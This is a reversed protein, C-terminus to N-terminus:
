KDEQYSSTFTRRPRMEDHDYDYLWAGATETAVALQQCEASM